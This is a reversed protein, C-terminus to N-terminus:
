TISGEGFTSSSFEEEIGGSKRNRTIQLTPSLRLGEDVRFGVQATWSMWLPLLAPKFYEM